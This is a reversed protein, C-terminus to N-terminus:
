CARYGPVLSLPSCSRTRGMVNIVHHVARGQTGIVRLTGTPSSTGHMPDFVVSDVNAELTVRDANAVRVTKLPSVWGSCQAPGDLDCKCDNAAGTHIVYCSGAASAHFSLRLAQNRAISETRIFQIDSALQTAAGDLKRTDILSRMGIAASSVLVVILALVICLEILSLGRQRHWLPPVSFVEIKL